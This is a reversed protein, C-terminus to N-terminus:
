VDRIRRAVAVTELLSPDSLVHDCPFPVDPWFRIQYLVIVIVNDDTM